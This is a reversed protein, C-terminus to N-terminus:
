EVYDQKIEIEGQLVTQISSDALTIQCEHVYQGPAVSATDAPALTVTVVSGVVTVGSALHKQLILAGSSRYIGYLIALATSVDVTVGTDADRVQITFTRSDGSYMSFDVAM